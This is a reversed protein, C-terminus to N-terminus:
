SVGIKYDESVVAVKRLKDIHGFDIYRSGATDPDLNENLDDLDGYDIYRVPEDDSTGLTFKARFLQVQTRSQVRRTLYEVDDVHYTTSQVSSHIQKPIKTEALSEAYSEYDGHRYIECEVLLALSKGGESGSGLRGLVDIEVM